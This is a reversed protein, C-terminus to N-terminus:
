NYDYLFLVKVTTYNFLTMQIQYVSVWCTVLVPSEGSHAAPTLSGLALVGELDRVVTLLRGGTEQITNQKRTVEHVEGTRESM